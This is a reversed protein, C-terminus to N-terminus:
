FGHAQKYFTFKYAKDRVWPINADIATVANTVTQDYGVVFEFVGSDWKEKRPGAMTTVVGNIVAAEGQFVPRNEYHGGEYYQASADSSAGAPKAAKSNDAVKRDTPQPAAQANNARRNVGAIGNVVDCADTPTTDTAAWYSYVTTVFYVYGELSMVMRECLPGGCEQSDVGFYCIASASGLKQINNTIPIGAGPLDDDVYHMTWDCTGITGHAGGWLHDGVSASGHGYNYEHKDQCCSLESTWFSTVPECGTTGTDCTGGEVQHIHCDKRNVEQLCVEKEEVYDYSDMAGAQSASAVSVGSRAGWGNRVEMVTPRGPVTALAAGLLLLLAACRSLQAARM